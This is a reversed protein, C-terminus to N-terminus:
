RRPGVVAGRTSVVVATIAIALASAVVVLVSVVFSGDGQTSRGAVGDAPRKTDPTLEPTM